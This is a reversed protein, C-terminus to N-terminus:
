RYNFNTHWRKLFILSKKGCTKFKQKWLLMFDTFKLDEQLWILSNTTMQAGVYSIKTVKAGFKRSKPWGLDTYKLSDWAVEAQFCHIRPWRLKIVTFGMGVWSPFASTSAFICLLNQCTHFEEGSLNRDQGSMNMAQNSVNRVQLSMNRVQGSMNRVKISLIRVQGSM